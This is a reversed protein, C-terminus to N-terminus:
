RPPAITALGPLRLSRITPRAPSVGNVFRSRTVPISSASDVQSDTRSRGEVQGSRRTPTDALSRSLGSTAPALQVSIARRDCATRPGGRQHLSSGAADAYSPLPHFLPAVPAMCAPCPPRSGGAHVTRYTSTTRTGTAAPNHARRSRTECRRGRHRQSRSHKALRTSSPM